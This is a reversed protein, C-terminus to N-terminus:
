RAADYPRNMAKLVRDSGSQLPLHVAACVKLLAGIAEILRANFFAPHPSTFRLRRLAELSSLRALLDAFPSADDPIPPPVGDFGYAAVNQGLLTIEKVGSEVLAEAEAVISDPARSTERGRVYPVICYSCFRNCGRSISIFASIPSRALEPRHADMGELNEPDRAILALRSHAAAEALTEPLHNLQDTGVVFDLHPLKELLEEGLRQAMCGMVGLLLDPKREKLHGLVGLKGLAKREAQDRVSCTNLIVADADDESAAAVHGRSVLLALAAESDRENMQCGYTKIHVRM